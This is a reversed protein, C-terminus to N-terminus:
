LPGLSYESQALGLFLLPVEVSEIVFAASANLAVLLSWSWSYPSLRCCVCHRRERYTSCASPVGISRL